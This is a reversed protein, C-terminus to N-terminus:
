LTVNVGATITRSIPYVGLDIGNRLVDSETIEPTYGTYDTITFLNSGSVFIRADQIQM